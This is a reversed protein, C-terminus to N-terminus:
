ENFSWNNMTGTQYQKQQGHTTTTHNNKNVCLEVSEGPIPSYSCSCKHVHTRYAESGIVTTTSIVTRIRDFQGRKMGSTIEAKRVYSQGHQMLIRDLM